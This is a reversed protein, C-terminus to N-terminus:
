FVPFPSAAPNWDSIPSPERAKGKRFCLMLIMFCIPICAPLFLVTTVGASLIYRVADVIVLDIVMVGGCLILAKKMSSTIQNQLCKRLMIIIIPVLLSQLYIHLIARFVFLKTTWSLIGLLILLFALSIIVIQKNKASM